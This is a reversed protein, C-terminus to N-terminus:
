PLNLVTESAATQRTTAVDKSLGGRYTLGIPSERFITAFFVRAALYTGEQLSNKHLGRRPSLQGGTFLRISHLDGPHIDVSGQHARKPKDFIPASTTEDLSGGALDTLM